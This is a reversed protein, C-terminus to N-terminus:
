EALYVFVRFLRSLKSRLRLDNFFVCVFTGDGSVDVDFIKKTMKVPNVILALAKVTAMASFLKTSLTPNGVNKVFSFFNKYLVLSKTISSNAFRVLFM